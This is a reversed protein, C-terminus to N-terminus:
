SIKINGKGLRLQQTFNNIFKSNNFEEIPFLRKKVTKFKRNKLIKDWWSDFNNYNNNIFDAAKKESDFLINLSKLYNLTKRFEKTFEKQKSNSVIIFPQSYYILEFLATSFNDIITIRYKGFINGKYNEEEFRIKNNTNKMWLKKLTKKVPRNFFKFKILKKKDDNILEYLKWYKNLYLHNCEKLNETWEQPLTLSPFFLLGNKKKSTKLKKHFYPAGIGNKDHWNFKIDAYKQIIYDEPSFKRMGFLGGHQFSVIKGGRKKVNLTIFKFNDSIHLLIATGISKFGESFKKNSYFFSKFNELFSSPFIEKNYENFIKDFSDNEPIILKKRLYNNKRSFKNPTNLFKEKLFLIKFKSLFMIQISKFVGFYGDIIINPKFIKIIINLFLTSFSILKKKNKHNKYKIKQNLIILNKFKLKKFIIYDLFKNVSTGFSLEDYISKTDKFFFDGSIVNIFVKKDKIKRYTKIKRKISIISVILYYDLLLGWENKSLNTQHIKNLNDRLFSRYKSVKKIIFLEEKNKNYVENLDEIYSCDYPQLQKKSFYNLLYEDKFIIKSNKQYDIKKQLYNILYKKTM